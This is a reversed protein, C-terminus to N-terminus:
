YRVGAKKYIFHMLWAPGILLFLVDHFFSPRKGEIKHGIFQGIWAAVFLVLCIKGPPWPAYAVLLALIWYCIAMFCLLGASLRPSLRFYFGGALAIALLAWNFWPVAGLLREPVPLATCFGLVSFFIVPVCIWHILENADDQHSEGYAAFWEDATKRPPMPHSPLQATTRILALTRRAGIGPM